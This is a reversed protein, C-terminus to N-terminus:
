RVWREEALIGRVVRGADEGGDGRWVEVPVENHNRVCSLALGNTAM